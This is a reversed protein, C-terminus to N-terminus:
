ALLAPPFVDATHMVERSVAFDRSPRVRPSNSHVHETDMSMVCLLKEVGLPQDQTHLSIEHCAVCTQTSASCKKHAQHSLRGSLASGIAPRESVLYLDLAARIREGQWWAADDREPALALAFVLVILVLVAVVHVLEVVVRALVALM